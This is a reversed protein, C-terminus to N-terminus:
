RRTSTNRESIKQASCQESTVNEQQPSISRVVTDKFLSETLQQQAPNKLIIWSKSPKVYYGYKEGEKIVVEWWKRLNQLTGAGTADDALWVQHVVPCQQKLTDIIQTVCIGYFPMALPCGKLLEKPQNSKGVVM